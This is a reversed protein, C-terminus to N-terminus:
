KKCLKDKMHKINYIATKDREDFIGSRFAHQMNEKNTAWELNEVSNNLKNCDKHNVTNKNEPNPIFTEAVIRHVTKTFKNSNVSLYVRAYGKRNFGQKLITESFNAIRGDKYITEGKKRKVIGKSSVEYNGEFGKVDKWIELM